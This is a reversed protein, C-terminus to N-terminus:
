HMAPAGQPPYSRARMPVALVIGWLGVAAFLAPAGLWGMFLGSLMPGIVAGVSWWRLVGANAAVRQHSSVRSHGLALALPYLGFVLGGTLAAAVFHITGAS